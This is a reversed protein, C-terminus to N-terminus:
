ASSKVIRVPLANIHFRKQRIQAAQNYGHLKVNKGQRTSETTIRHTM